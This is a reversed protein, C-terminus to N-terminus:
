NGNKFKNLKFRAEDVRNILELSKTVYNKFMPRLRLNFSISTSNIFWCIDKVSKVSLNFQINIGNFKQYDINNTLTYILPSNENYITKDKDTYISDLKNKIEDTLLLSKNISSSINSLLIGSVKKYDNFVSRSIFDLEETHNIMFHHILLILDFNLTQIDSCLNSVSSFDKYIPNNEDNIFNRLISININSDSTVIDNMLMLRQLENELYYMIGNYTNTLRYANGWRKNQKTLLDKLNEFLEKTSDINNDFNIPKIEFSENLNTTEFEHLKNEGLIFEKAKKDNVLLLNSIGTLLDISDLSVYNKAYDTLRNLEKLKDNELDKSNLINLIENSISFNNQINNKEMTGTFGFFNNFNNLDNSEFLLKVHKEPLGTFSVAEFIATDKGTKLINSNDSLTNQSIKKM